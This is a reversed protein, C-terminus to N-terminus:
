GAPKEELAQQFDTPVAVVRPETDREMRKLRVEFEQRSM